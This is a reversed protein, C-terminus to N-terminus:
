PAASIDLEMRRMRRISAPTTLWLIVPSRERGDDSHILLYERGLNDEERELVHGGHAIRPGHRDRVVDALRIWGGATRGQWTWQANNNNDIM